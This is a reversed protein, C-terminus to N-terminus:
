ALPSVKSSARAFMASAIRGLDTRYDTSLISTQGGSQTRKRVERVWVKKGLFTDREALAMEVIEGSALEVSRVQFEDDPWNKDAHKHYTLCAIRREKM